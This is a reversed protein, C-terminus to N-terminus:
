KRLFYKETGHIAEWEDKLLSYLYFDHIYGNKEYYKRLIGERQMGLKEMVRRSGMNVCLCTSEVRHLDPVHIFGYALLINAAETVLGQGWYPEGIVYGLELTHLSLIEARQFLCISGIVKQPRAPNNQKLVIALPNLVNKENLFRASDIFNVSDQLTVHVEWNMLRAVNINSAYEFVDHVDDPTFNRLLLRKTELVVPSVPPMVYKM